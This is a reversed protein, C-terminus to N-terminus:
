GCRRSREVQETHRPNARAGLRPWAARTLLSGNYGRIHKGAAKYWEHDEASVAVGQSLLARIRSFRERDASLIM